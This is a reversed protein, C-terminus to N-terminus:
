DQFRYSTGKIKPLTSAPSQAQTAAHVDGLTDCNQPSSASPFHRSARRLRATGLVDALLSNWSRRLYCCMLAHRANVIADVAQEFPWMSAFIGPLLRHLRKMLTCEKGAQVSRTMGDLSTKGEVEVSCLPMIKSEDPMPTLPLCVIATSLQICDGEKSHEFRSQKSLPGLSRKLGPTDQLEQLTQQM